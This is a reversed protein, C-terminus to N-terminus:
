AQCSQGLFPRSSRVIGRGANEGGARILRLYRWAFDLPLLGSRSRLSRQAFFRSHPAAPLSKARISDVSEADPRGLVAAAAAPRPCRISPMSNAGAGGARDGDARHARRPSDRVTGRRSQDPHVQIEGRYDADITGPSNLVTVGHKAALGSRPRVQAEFGRSARDCARRCWRTSAPRSCWRRTKRFRRSCTSALRMRARIPRCRCAKQRAPLQRIDLKIASM